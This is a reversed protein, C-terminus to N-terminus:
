KKLFNKDILTGDPLFCQISLSHDDVDLVLFNETEPQPALIKDLAHRIWFNNYRVNGAIGTLIYLPAREDDSTEFNKLHGRNRYTHLHATLVLDVHFKEFIPAFLLGAEEIGEKREPRGHIRYCLVDRHMLVIKWIKKTESLDKQLWDIQNKKLADDDFEVWNTNLVSFHAQGFDFSYYSKKEQIEPLPFFNQFAIPERVKWARNYTEHNGIIPAFPINESFNQLASFWQQWQNKDEGNDVLDGMSVFFDADSFKQMARHFCSQWTKYGDSCQSDPFIVARFKKQGDDTKLRFWASNEKESCIRYQYTEGPLLNKFQVQHLFNKQGDDSFEFNDAQFKQLFNKKDLKLEVSFNQNKDSHWVLTRERQNDKAIMQRLCNIKLANQADSSFFQCGSSLNALTVVFGSSLALFERRSIKKHWM